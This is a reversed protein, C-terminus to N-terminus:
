RGLRDDRARWVEGSGGSGLLRDVTYVGVRDGPRLSWGDAAIANALTDAAPTNLFEGSEEDAALLSLAEARLAEDEGCARAVVGARADAPQQRADAFVQDLRQWQESTM